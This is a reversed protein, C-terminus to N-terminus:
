KPWYKLNNKIQYICTQYTTQNGITQYGYIKLKKTTPDFDFKYDILTLYKESSAYGSSQPNSLYPYEGDFNIAKNDAINITEIIVPKSPNSGVKQEDLFITATKITEDYAFSLKLNVGNAQLNQFSHQLITFQNSGNLSVEHSEQEYPHAAPTKWFDKSAKSKLQVLKAAFYVEPQRIVIAFTDNRGTAYSILGKSEVATDKNTLVDIAKFAVTNGTAFTSIIKELDKSDFQNSKIIKGTIFVSDARLAESIYFNNADFEQWRKAPLMVRKLKYAHVTISINSSNNFLSTLALKKWGNDAYFSEDPGKLVTLDSETVQIDSGIYSLDKNPKPKNFGIGFVNASPTKFYYWGKDVLQAKSLTVILLLSLLNITIKM